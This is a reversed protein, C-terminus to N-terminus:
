FDNEHAVARQNGNEKRLVIKKEKEVKWNTKHKVLSLQKFVLDIYYDLDKKIFSPFSFKLELNMEHKGQYM